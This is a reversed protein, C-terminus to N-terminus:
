KRRCLPVLRPPSHGMLLKLKPTFIHRLIGSGIRGQIDVFGKVWRDGARQRKLFIILLVNVCSCKSFFGVLCLSNVRRGVKEVVFLM